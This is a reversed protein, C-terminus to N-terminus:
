SAPRIPLNAGAAKLHLTGGDRAFKLVISRIGGAAGKPDSYRYGKGQTLEKWKEPVLTVPLADGAGSVSVISGVTRANFRSGRPGSWKGKFVLATDRVALNTKALPYQLRDQPTDDARLAAPAALLSLCLLVLTRRM